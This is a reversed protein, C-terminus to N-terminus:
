RRRRRQAELTSRQVCYKFVKTWYLLYSLLWHQHQTLPNLTVWTLQPDNQPPTTQGVLCAQTVSILKRNNTKGRRTKEKRKNQRQNIEWVVNTLHTFPSESQVTAAAASSLAATKLRQWVAAQFKDVCVCVCMCAFTLTNALIGM